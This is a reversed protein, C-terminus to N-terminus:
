ELFASNLLFEYFLEYTETTVASGASSKLLRGNRESSPFLISHCRNRIFQLEFVTCLREKRNSQTELVSNSWWVQLTHTHKHTHTHSSRIRGTFSLTVSLFEQSQTDSSQRRTNLVNRLFQPGSDRTQLKYSTVAGFPQPSAYAQSKTTSISHLYLGKRQDKRDRNWNVPTHETNRWELGLPVPVLKPWAWRFEDLKVITDVAARTDLRLLEVASAHREPLHWDISQRLSRELPLDICLSFQHSTLLGVSSLTCQWNIPIPYWYDLAVGVRESIWWVVFKQSLYRPESQFLVEKCFWVNEAASNCLANNMLLSVHPNRNMQYRGSNIRHNEKKNKSKLNELSAMTKNKEKKEKRNPEFVKGRHEFGLQKIWVLPCCKELVGSCLTLFYVCWFKIQNQRIELRCKESPHGTIM